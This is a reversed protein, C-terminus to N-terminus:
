EDLINELDQLMNTLEEREFNIKVRGGGPHALTLLYDEDIKTILWKKEEPMGYSTDLWDDAKFEAIQLLVGFADKPHIFLEKWREGYDNYGFYPINNKELIERARKINPTQLVLHHIGNGRKKFFNELFSGKGTPRIIEFRSLDGMAFTEWYYKLNNDTGNYQSIAGLIKTYFEVAGEYDEVALSVHDIRIIM